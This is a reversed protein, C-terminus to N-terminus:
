KKIELLGYRVTNQYQENTTGYSILKQIIIVPFYLYQFFINKQNAKVYNFFDFIIGFALIYSLSSIILQIVLNPSITPLFTNAISSLVILYILFPIECIIKDSQKSNISQYHSLNSFYIQWNKIKEQGVWISFIILVFPIALLFSFIRFIFENGFILLYYIVHFYLITIFVSLLFQFVNFFNLLIINDQSCYPLKRKLQEALFFPFYVNELLYFFGRLVPLSKLFVNPLFSYKKSYVFHQGDVFFSLCLKNKSRLVIGNPLPLATIKM